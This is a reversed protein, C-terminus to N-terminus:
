PCCASASTSRPCTSPWTTTWSRERPTITSAAGLTSTGKNAAGAAGGHAAQKDIAARLMKLGHEQTRAALVAPVLV